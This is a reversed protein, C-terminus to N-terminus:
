CSYSSIFTSETKGDHSKISWILLPAQMLVNVGNAWEFIWRFLFGEFIILYLSSLKIDAPVILNFYLWFLPKSITYGRHIHTCMGMLWQRLFLEIVHPFCHRTGFMGTTGTNTFTHTHICVIFLNNIKIQSPRKLKTKKSKSVSRGFFFFLLFLHQFQGSWLFPNM